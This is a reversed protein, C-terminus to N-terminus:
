NTYAQSIIIFEGRARQVAKVLHKFHVTVLLISWKWATQKLSMELAQIKAVLSYEIEIKCREAVIIRYNFNSIFVM